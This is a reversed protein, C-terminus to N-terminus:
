CEKVKNFKDLWMVFSGKSDTVRYAHNIPKGESNRNRYHKNAIYKVQLDCSLMYSEYNVMSDYCEKVDYVKGEIYFKGNSLDKEFTVTMM